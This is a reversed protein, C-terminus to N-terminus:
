WEGRPDHLSPNCELTAQNLSGRRVSWLTAYPYPPVYRREEYSKQKLSRRIDGDGKRSGHLAVSASRPKRWSEAACSPEAWSKCTHSLLVTSGKSSSRWFSSTTKGSTLRSGDPNRAFRGAPKAGPIRFIAGKVPFVNKVNDFNV